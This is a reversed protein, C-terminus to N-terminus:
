FRELSGSNKVLAETRKFAIFGLFLLICGEFLCMFINNSASSLSEDNVMLQRSLEIGYTFPIFKAIFIMFKPMISIPFSIGCLIMVTGRVVNVVANTQKLWLILSAFLAGMGYVAPCLVVIVIIWNYAHGSFNIRYLYSYEVLSIIIVIVDMIFSVLGGGVLLCFKNVPCLWNAELTGRQQEDRLYTGFTWMTDNIWSWVITGVVIYAAFNTTGAAKNFASLGSHSPGSLGVAGLIYIVPFLLPWIIMSLIWTPYRLAQTLDKKAVALVARFFKIM